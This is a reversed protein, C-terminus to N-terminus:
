QCLTCNCTEDNEHPEGTCPTPDNYGAVEGTHPGHLIESHVDGIYDAHSRRDNDRVRRFVAGCYLCQDELPSDTSSFRHGYSSWHSTVPPLMTEAWDLLASLESRNEPDSHENLLRQVEDTLDEHVEGRHSLTSIAESYPSPSHYLAAIGRAAEDSITEGTKHFVRIERATFEEHM